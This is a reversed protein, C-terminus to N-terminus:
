EGIRGLYAPYGTVVINRPHRLVFTIHGTVTDRHERALAELEELREQDGDAGAPLEETQHHFDCSAILCRAEYVNTESPINVAVGEATLTPM